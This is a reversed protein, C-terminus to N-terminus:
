GGAARAVTDAVHGALLAHLAPPLDHGMGEIVQLRAQPLARALAQGHALPLLPDDRGHIVTAPMRCGGLAATRDPAAM